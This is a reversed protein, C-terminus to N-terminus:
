NGDPQASPFKAIVIPQLEAQRRYFVRPRQEKARAITAEKLDRETLGKSQERSQLKKAVEDRLIPVRRTAYDFWERLVVEGDAPNNDAHRSRLGDDVLAYNLYSRQLDNSVYAEERGQTATLIYMGKEYAFQALGKSNMPGQRQDKAELASGSECADVILTINKADIRRFVNELELDSIGHQMITKLGDKALAELRGTYGIDHPIMYFRDGDSIGHGSFYVIVTDEPQAADSNAADVNGALRKLAGLINEKTADADTLTTVSVADSTGLETQTARLFNGFNAADGTVFGLDFAKNAYKGIGIAVIYTKGKRALSEDGDLVIDRDPSKINDNNFAYATLVNRGRVVPVDAELVARGDKQVVSNEWFHVLSGNRFLRVDRAGSGSTYGASPGAETVEIRVRVVRDKIANVSKSGDALSIKLDPQRRDRSSIDKGGAPRKGSFLNALLGPQYFEDFFVEVPNVSFTDNRFRWLIQEWADPSGDFFGQPTVVVWDVASKLSVLTLAPTNTGRDWINVSGDEGASALWEGDPTYAASSVNGYHGNLVRKERGDPVGWIRVTKDEAASALESGDPNFSVARVKGSHGPLPTVLVGTSSDWIRVVKDSGGSALYNGDPSFAITGVESPSDITRVPAGTTADWLRITKDASGSAILKEDPSIAVAMVDGGHGPLFKILQYSTLDWLGVTKDSSGSALFKGSKSVAIGNVYGKHGPLSKLLNESVVDWVRISFDVSASILRSNDPTFAVSTVFGNHGVLPPLAQGTRLDWLKVSNDLGGFALWNRDPSFAVTQLGVTRNELTELKEGTDTSFLSATRDGNSVALFRGDISFAASDVAGETFEPGVRSSVSKVDRKSAPDWIKVVCNSDASTVRGDDLFRVALVKGMHGPLVATEKGNAAKWVRVTKDSSGSAVLDGGANFVLAEIQDKHGKLDKLRKGKALDWIKVLGSKDGSTLFAGDRSFAIATVPTTHESLNSIKNGTAIDWLVASNGPGSSALKRGDSSFAVAEVLTDGLDLRKFERGATVDWIRVSHDNSGSALLHGDPSTALVRVPGTHGTLARLERGTETDWIKISNDFSGTAVWRGDPGFTVADVSSSHGTQLVLEPRVTEAAYRENAASYWSPLTLQFVVCAIGAFLVVATKSNDERLRKQM